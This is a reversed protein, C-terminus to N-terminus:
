GCAEKKRSPFTGEKVENKGPNLFWVKSIMEEMWPSDRLYDWKAQRPFVCLVWCKRALFGWMEAEQLCRNMGMDCSHVRGWSQM